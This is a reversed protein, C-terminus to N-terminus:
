RWWRRKSDWMEHGATWSLVHSQRGPPACGPWESGIRTLTVGRKSPHSDHGWGVEKRSVLSDLATLTSTLYHRGRSMPELLTGNHDLCLYPCAPAWSQSEGSSVKNFVPDELSMNGENGAVKVNEWTWFEGNINGKDPVEGRICIHSTAAGPPVSKSWSM